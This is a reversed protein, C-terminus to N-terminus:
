RLLVIKEGKRFASFLIAVEKERKIGVHVRKNIGNPSCVRSFIERSHVPYKNSRAGNVRSFSTDLGLQISGDDVQTM